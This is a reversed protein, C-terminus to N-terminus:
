SRTHKKDLLGWLVIAIFFCAIIPWAVTELIANTVDASAQRLTKAISPSNPDYLIEVKTGRNLANCETDTTTFFTRRGLPRFRVTTRCTTIDTCTGEGDCSLVEKQYSAKVTGETTSHAIDYFGYANQITRVSAFPCMFIGLIVVLTAAVVFTWGVAPWTQSVLQLPRTGERM